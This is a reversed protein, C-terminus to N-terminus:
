DVKETVFKYLSYSEKSYVTRFYILRDLAVDKNATFTGGDEFLCMQSNNLLIFYLM